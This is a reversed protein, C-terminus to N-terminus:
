TQPVGPRLRIRLRALRAGYLALRSEYSFIRRHPRGMNVGDEEWLTQLEDKLLKLYLNIDTGPQKPGQILMSM